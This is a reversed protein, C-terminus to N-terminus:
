LLYLNDFVLFSFAAPGIDAQGALLNQVKQPDTTFFTLECISM